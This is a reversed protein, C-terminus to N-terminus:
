SLVARVKSMLDDPRVPKQIFISGNELAGERVVTDETYGSMLICRVHPCFALVREYLQRGDLGPMVMDTLLLDIADRVEAAIRLADKVDRAELVRYGHSSLVGCILRRVADDDEAVLVTGSGFAKGSDLTETKDQSCDVAVRPLYINFSSGRGPESHVWIDGGHQKVIGFVTALGLGTGKGKEKTTFFPEFVHNLTETDMGAGTDSVTLLVYPGEPAVGRNMTYEAGLEIHATEITLTGGSAMADRANVGLNMLIQEIQSPDAKVICPLADTRTIVRIDEGILRRLMTEFGRVINNLDVREIQLVQKRGFALLQRTLAQARQGAKDIERIDELVQQSLVGAEEELIGESYGLIVTLLNNFDHAVGGALRGVTEMKQAQALQAELMEREAEARKRETIDRLFVVLWGGEGSQYQVSVEVELISGDKRRHRSDFRDEGEALVKKIHAATDAPSEAAELDQIKMSLLEQETYGSMRCYRENVERLHGQLDAQWFGDMATQLITRHREESERLAQEAQKRETVDNLIVLFKDRILKGVIETIRVTGDKCTVHYDESAIDGHDEKAREARFYWSKRVAERYADDPYARAWWAELTPIDESTYGFVETFKDNLYDIAGDASSLGMPVPSHKLLFRFREESRRLAEESRQREALEVRLRENAERLEATREEVRHELANKAEHLEEETQRHEEIELELRDYAKRLSTYGLIENKLVLAAYGFFVPLEPQFEAAAFHMGEMKFVGIIEAGVRLPYVWTFAKTFEATLMRTDEFDHEYEAFEGTHLAQRVREDSVDDLTTRNGFVDACHAKGDILYYIVLNTGGIADLVLRLMSQVTDDLGVATALKSMLDTLLQLRSKEMALKKVRAELGALAERSIAVRESM